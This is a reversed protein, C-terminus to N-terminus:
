DELRIAAAAAETNALQKRLEDAKIWLAQRQYRKEHIERARKLAAYDSYARAERMRSDKLLAYLRDLEDAYNTEDTM